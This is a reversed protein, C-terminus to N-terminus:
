LQRVIYQKVTSESYECASAFKVFLDLLESFPADENDSDVSITVGDKTKHIFTFGTM